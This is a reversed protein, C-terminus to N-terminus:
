VRYGFRDLRERAHSREGDSFLGAFQERCALAEVTLDLRGLEWLKTFGDSPQDIPAALLRRCAPLVGSESVMQVFYVSNYKLRRCEAITEMVAATFEQELQVQDM